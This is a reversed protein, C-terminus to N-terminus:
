IFWSQAAKEGLVRVVYWFCSLVAVFGNEILKEV